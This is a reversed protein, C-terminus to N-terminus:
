MQHRLSDLLEPCGSARDQILVLQLRKRASRGSPDERRFFRQLFDFRFLEFM